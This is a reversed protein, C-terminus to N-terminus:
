KALDEWERELRDWFGGNSSTRLEAEKEFQEAWDGGEGPVM